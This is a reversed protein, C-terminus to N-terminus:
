DNYQYKAVTDALINLMDHEAAKSGSGCMHQLARQLVILLKRKDEKLVISKAEAIWRKSKQDALQEKLEKIQKLLQECDDERPDVLPSGTISSFNPDSCCGDCGHVEGHGIGHRCAWEIKGDHRNCIPWHWNKTQTKNEM